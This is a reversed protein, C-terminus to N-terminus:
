ALDVFTAMRSLSIREKGEIIALKVLQNKKRKKASKKKQMEQEEETMRQTKKKGVKTWGDEAEATAEKQKDFKKMWENIDEQLQKVNPFSQNYEACFLSYGQVVPHEVTSVVMVGLDTGAMM